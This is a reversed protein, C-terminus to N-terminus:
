FHLTHFKFIKNKNEFGLFSSVKLASYSEIGKIKIIREGDVNLKQINQRPVIGIVQFILLGAM